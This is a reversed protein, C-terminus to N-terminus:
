EILKDEKYKQTANKLIENLDADYNASLKKIFEFDVAIVDFLRTGLTMFNDRFKIFETEKENITKRKFYREVYQYFKFADSTLDM